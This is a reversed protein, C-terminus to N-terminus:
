AAVESAEPAYQRDIETHAEYVSGQSAYVERARNFGISSLAMAIYGYAEHQRSCMAPLDNCPERLDATELDALNCQHLADVLNHGIQQRVKNTM